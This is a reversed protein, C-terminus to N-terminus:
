RAGIGNDEQGFPIDIPGEIRFPHKSDHSSIYEDIQAIHIFWRRHLLGTEGVETDPSRDGSAFREM